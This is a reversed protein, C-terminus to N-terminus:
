EQEWRYGKSEMCKKMEQAVVGEMSPQPPPEREWYRTSTFQGPILASGLEKTVTDKCAQQDERISQETKGDKVWQGTACGNLALGSLLM